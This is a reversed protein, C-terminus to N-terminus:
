VDKILRYTKDTREEETHKERFRKDIKLPRGYGSLGRGGRGKAFRPLRKFSFGRGGFFSGRFSRRSLGSSLM